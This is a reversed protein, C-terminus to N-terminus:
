VFALVYYTLVISSMLLGHAISIYASDAFRAQKSFHPFNRLTLFLKGVARVTCRLPVCVVIFLFDLLLILNFLISICALSRHSSASSFQATDGDNRTLWGEYLCFPLFTCHKSRAIKDHKCTKCAGPGYILNDRPFISNYFQWNEKTIKGPNSRSTFIFFSVVFVLFAPFTVLHISSLYPGPVHEYGSWMM